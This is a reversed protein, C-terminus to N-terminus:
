WGLWQRVTTLPRRFIYYALSVKKSYIKAVGTLGIRPPPNGDPVFDAKLRYAVYGAATIDPKYSAYTLAGGRPRQPDTTLYLRVETGMSLEVADAVPLHILMEVVAPDAIVLVREGISVSKGVWDNPDTFVAIGRRPARVEVKDLLKRTYRLETEKEEMRGRNPKLGLRVKEDQVAKQATQRYEEAAIQYAKTAVDMKTKLSTRDFEFLVQGEQVAENPRVLFRDIVGDLPSRIVFPDKPAVEAPAQVSLRVPVCLLAIVALLLAAKMRPKELVARIWRSHGGAPALGRFGQAYVSCLESMLSLESDEWQTDRALLLFGLSPKGTILLPVIIAHAPLWDEWSDAVNRPLDSPQVRRCDGTKSWARFAASLWQVYPTGPDSAALGSLSFIGKGNLWLAAQRYDVLRKTENVALFGIEEPREAERVRKSLHLLLSLGLIKKEDDGM